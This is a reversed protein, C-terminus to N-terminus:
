LRKYQEVISLRPEYRRGGVSRGGFAFPGPNTEFKAYVNVSEYLYWM